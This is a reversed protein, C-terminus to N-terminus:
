KEQGTSIQFESDAAITIVVGAPLCVISEHARSIRGTHECIKDACKSDRVYVEGNEIVVTLSDLEIVRSDALSYETTVGNVTVRAAAGARSPLLAIISVAVTIVVLAAIIIYDVLNVAKTRKLASIRKVDTM